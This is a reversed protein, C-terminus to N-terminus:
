LDAELIAMRNSLKCGDAPFYLFYEWSVSFEAELWHALSTRGQLERQITSGQTIDGPRFCLM